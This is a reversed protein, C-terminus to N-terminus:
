LGLEVHIAKPSRSTEVLCFRVRDGTSLSRLGSSRLDERCVFVNRDDDLGGTVRIYGFGRNKDFSQVKGEHTKVVPAAQERM